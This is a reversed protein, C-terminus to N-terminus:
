AVARPEIEQAEPVRPSPRGSLITGVGDAVERWCYDALAKRGSFRDDRIPEHFTVAVRIRGLRVASWLHPALEMDGYWAYLSRFDRGLPIGDLHTPVISVPQITLAPVDPARLFGAVAFLASKFPLTRNGDSSTGEPFLIMADGGVLRARLSDGDLRANRAKRDVFVTRQLRALTGFLPWTQVEKKAVFSGPILAGLVTIDLYSTHNCVFLTPRDQSPKGHVVVEFGLIRCCLGHYFVPLNRSLPRDFRVALWQVPLLVLTLCGYSFLRILGLITSGM